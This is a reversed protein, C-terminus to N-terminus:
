FARLLTLVANSSPAVGGYHRWSASYLWPGSKWSMAASSVRKRSEPMWLVDASVDFDGVNQAGRLLVNRQYGKAASRDVWAEGLVSFKSEATWNVGAMAKGGGDAPFWRRVYPSWTEHRQQLLASAHLELGDNVVHAFSVGGEIGNRQSLRLVAFQDTSGAQRFVRLALSEDDRPQDAKGKGPNSLVVTIAREADFAEWALMPVGQLIGPNLARRDEQQVVDLPRFAYGVDWSMVKKGATVFGSGFPREITLENVVLTGPHRASFVGHLDSFQWRLEATESVQGPGSEYQARVSGFVTDEAHAGAACLCALCILEKM